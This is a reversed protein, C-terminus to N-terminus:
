RKRLKSIINKCSYYFILIYFDVIIIVASFVLLDIFLYALHQRYINKYIHEIVDLNYLHFDKIFGHDLLLSIGLGVSAILVIIITNLILFANFDDITIDKHRIKLYFYRLLILIGIVAIYFCLNFFIRDIKSVFKLCFLSPVIIFLSLVCYNYITLRIKKSM